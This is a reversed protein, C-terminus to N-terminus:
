HERGERQRYQRPEARPYGYSHRSEVPVYVTTPETEAAIIAGAAAGLIGGIVAGQATDNTQSGVVAGATAGVIAGTTAAREQHATACASLSVIAAFLIVRRM